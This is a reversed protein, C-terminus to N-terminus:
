RALGAPNSGQSDLSFLKELKELMKIDVPKELM